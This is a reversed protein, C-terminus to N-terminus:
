GGGGRAAARAAAPARPGQGEVLEVRTSHTVRSKKDSDLSDLRTLRTSDLRILGSQNHRERSLADARAPGAERCREHLVESSDLVFLHHTSKWSRKFKREGGRWLGFRTLFSLTRESKMEVDGVLISSWLLPFCMLHIMMGSPYLLMWRGCDTDRETLKPTTSGYM